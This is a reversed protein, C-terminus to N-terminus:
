KEFILEKILYRQEVNFTLVCISINPNEKM